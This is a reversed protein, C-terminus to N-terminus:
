TIPRGNDYLPSSPFRVTSGRHGPHRPESVPQCSGYRKRILASLHSKTRTSRALQAVAGVASVVSVLTVVGGNMAFQTDKTAGLNLATEGLRGLRDLFVVDYGTHETKMLDKTEQMGGHATHEIRGGAAVNISRQTCKKWRPGLPAAISFWSAASTAHDIVPRVRSDDACDAASPPTGDVTLNPPASFSPFGEVLKPVLPQQQIPANKKLCCAPLGTSTPDVVLQAEDGM